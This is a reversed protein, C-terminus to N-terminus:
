VKAPQDEAGRVQPVYGGKPLEIRVIDAQGENEYYEALRSRLRRAETRVIPDLKPNYEPDRGFVEVVIVSEKLEADRGELHREVLFRLLRSLQGSRAFLRNELVQELKRRVAQTEPQVIPM